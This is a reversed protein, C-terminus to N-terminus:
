QGAVVHKAGNVVHGPERKAHSTFTIVSGSFQPEHPNRHGESLGPAENVHTAPVHTISHMWGVRVRSQLPMRSSSQSTMSPVLSLQVAQPSVHGSGAFGHM